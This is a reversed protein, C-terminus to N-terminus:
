HVYMQINQTQKDFARIITDSYVIILFMRNKLDGNNNILINVYCM